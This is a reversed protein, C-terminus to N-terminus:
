GGKNFLGAVESLDNGKKRNAASKNEEQIKIFIEERHIPVNRPAKIALKVSRGDVEMITVSINENIRISEGVKRTLVLM